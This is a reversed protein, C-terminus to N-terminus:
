ILQKGCDLCKLKTQNGGIVVKNIHNCETVCVKTLENEAEDFARKWIHWNIFTDELGNDTAKKYTRLAIQRTSEM